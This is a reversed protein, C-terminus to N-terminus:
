IKKLVVGSEIHNTYAFQDFLATSVVKFSKKLVDLDRKLTIPNCSIYIINEFKSIFELSKIDLGARPPDVFVYSFNYSDLDIDKLRRFEREKNMASTLDESSLRVFEINKISNLQCNQKAAKISNKSIETALVKNFRQSLPITFNGHGCYLELLDSDNQSLNSLVWEIMKENVKLNPQIFGTDYLKYHYLKGDITLSEDIFDDSCVLKIGRSRGIIKIGLIKELKSARSQWIEDIKKHYILTVLLNKTTSSLFEIAFLKHELIKDDQLLKLLPSMMNAITDSVISCEDIMVVGKKDLRSMAYSIDDKDHWIKFEARYRFHESNSRAIYPSDFELLNSSDKVKLDLQEQYNLNYLTCSGCVGFYECEM